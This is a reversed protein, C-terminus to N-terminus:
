AAATGSPGSDIGPNRYRSLLQEVARAVRHEPAAYVVIHLPAELGDLVAASEASLSNRGSSSWDLYHDHRGILWGALLAICLLLLAFLTDAAVRQARQWDLM